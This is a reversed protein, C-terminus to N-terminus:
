QFIEKYCICLIKIIEAKIIELFLIIVKGIQKIM